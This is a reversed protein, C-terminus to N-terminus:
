SRGGLSYGAPVDRRRLRTVDDGTGRDGASGADDLRVEWNEELLLRLVHAAEPTFAAQARRLVRLCAEEVQAQRDIGLSGLDLGTVAVIEEAFAQGAWRAVSDWKDLDVLEDSM